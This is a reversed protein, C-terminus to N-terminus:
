CEIATELYEQRDANGSLYPSGIKQAVCGSKSFYRKADAVWPGSYVANRM